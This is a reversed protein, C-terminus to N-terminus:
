SILDGTTKNILLAVDNNEERKPANLNVKYLGVGKIVYIISLIKSRVSLSIYRSEIFWVQIMLALIFNM